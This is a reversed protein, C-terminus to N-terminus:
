GLLVEVGEAIARQRNEQWKLWAVGQLLCDALDDLKGVEEKVEMIQKGEDESLAKSKPSHKKMRGVKRDWKETYLEKVEQVQASGLHVMKGPFIQHPNGKDDAELWKRVLDVKAGKNRIKAEKSNRVKTFKPETESGSLETEEIWFSGVKRPAIEVVKGNWVKEESLTKLTAWLMSELM